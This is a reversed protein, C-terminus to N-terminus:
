ASDELLGLERLMAEEQPPLPYAARLQERMKQYEAQELLADRRAIHAAVCAQHLAGIDGQAKLRDMQATV